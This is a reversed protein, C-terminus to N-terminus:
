TLLDVFLIAFSELTLYNSMFQHHVTFMWVPNYLLMYVVISHSFFFSILTKCYDFDFCRMGTSISSRPGDCM